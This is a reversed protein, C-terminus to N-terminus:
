KAVPRIGTYQASVLKWSGGERRAVFSARLAMVRPSQGPVQVTYALRAIVIATDGFMRVVPEVIEVAPANSKKDPAYFGLMKERSDVEGVPSIELYDPATLATLRPVDFSQQARVFDGVLRVLAEQAAPDQRAHTAPPGM